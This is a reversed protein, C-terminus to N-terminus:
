WVWGGVAGGGDAQGCILETDSSLSLAARPHCLLNTTPVEKHRWKRAANDTVQASEGTPDGKSHSPSHNSAQEGVLVFVM